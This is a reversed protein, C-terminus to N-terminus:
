SALSSILSFQSYLTFLMSYIKVIACKKPRLIPKWENRSHIWCIGRASLATTTNAVLCGAGITHGAAEVVATNATTTTVAVVTEGLSTAAAETTWVVTPLRIFTRIRDRRTEGKSQMTEGGLEFPQFIGKIILVGQLLIHPPFKPLILTNCRSTQLHVLTTLEQCFKRAPPFIQNSHHFCYQKQCQYKKFDYDWKSYVIDFFAM